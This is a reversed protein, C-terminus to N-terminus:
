GVNDYWKRSERLWLIREWNYPIKKFAVSFLYFNDLDDWRWGIRGHYMNSNTFAFYYLRVNWWRPTVDAYSIQWQGPLSVPKPHRDGVLGADYEQNCHAQTPASIGCLANQEWKVKLWGWLYDTHYSNKLYDPLCRGGGYDLIVPLVYISYTLVIVAAFLVSLTLCRRM